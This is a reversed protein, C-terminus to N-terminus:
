MSVHGGAGMVDRISAVTEDVLIKGGDSGVKGNIILGGYGGLQEARKSPLYGGYGGCLQVVFTQQASSRAKIRHGYDLYLEFPNSVFVTQGIRIVALEMDFVAVKKQLEFRAIVAKANQILVFHHLKSDYPGPRGPIKENRIVERCFDQYAEKEPMVAVLERLQKEAVAAEGKSARRLPLSLKKTLCRVEPSFDIRSRAEPLVTEVTGSL